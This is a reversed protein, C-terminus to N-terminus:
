VRFGINPDGIKPFEWSRHLNELLAKLETAFTSVFGLGGVAELSLVEFGFYYLRAFFFFM